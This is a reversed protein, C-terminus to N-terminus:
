ATGSHDTVNQSRLVERVHLRVHPRVVDVVPQHQLLRAGGGDDRLGQLRGQLHSPAAPEQLMIHLLFEV